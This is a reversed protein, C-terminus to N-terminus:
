ELCWCKRYPNQECYGSIVERANFLPSLLNRQDVRCVTGVAGLIHNAKKTTLICIPCCETCCGSYGGPGKWSQQEALQNGAQVPAYPKGAGAGRMGPLVKCIESSFKLFNRNALERLKKLDRQLSAWSDLVDAVGRLEANDAFNSLTRETWPCAHSPSPSQSPSLPSPSSPVSFLALCLFIWSCLEITSFHSTCAANGLTASFSPLLMLCLLSLPFFCFSKSSLSTILAQSDWQAGEGTTCVPFSELEAQVCCVPCMCWCMWGPASPQVVSDDRRSNRLPKLPSVSIGTKSDWCSVGRIKGPPM